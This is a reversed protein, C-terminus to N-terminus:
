SGGLLQLSEIRGCIVLQIRSMEMLRLDVGRVIVCGYSVRIRIENVSYAIVGHHNELLVRNQGALEVIPLRSLVDSKGGQIIKM